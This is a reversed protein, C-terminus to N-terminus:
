VSPLVHIFFASVAIKAEIGKKQKVIGSREKQAQKFELKTDIMIKQKAVLTLEAKLSCILSIDTNFYTSNYIHVTGHDLDRRCHSTGRAITERCRKCSPLGTTCGGM